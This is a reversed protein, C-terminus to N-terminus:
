IRIKLDQRLPKGSDEDTKTIPVVCLILVRQVVTYVVDYFIAHVYVGLHRIEGKFNVVSNSKRWCILIPWTNVTM